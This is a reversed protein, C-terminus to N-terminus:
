AEEQCYITELPQNNKFFGEEKFGNWEKETYQFAWDWGFHRVMVERAADPSSAVIVQHRNALSRSQGFTFYHKEM